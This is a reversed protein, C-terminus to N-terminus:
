PEDRRGRQPDRITLRQCPGGERVSYYSDVDLNPFSDIRGSPWRIEVRDVARAAGLGFHLRPDSASQYSGGGLRQAVQVRGGAEVRIKAGVADRGSRTGELRLGLFRGANETRNMLVALPADLDTVVADVRGDNDLDGVALGRGLRPARLSDGALDTADLFRFGHSGSTGLLLQTPMKYPSARLENLHGNASMLDLVGDNNADLAALGFGLLNRSPAALGVVRTRDAFVGPALNQYFTTSEGFFNTVALDPRGDGNWDGCAVGMGAQYGGQANGAVGWAPAVDEFRFGGLNRWLYNASEDNAVFLDIRQDDDLDAAVVGLGRGERDVLGSESTVDVFRDGDNRFVRDSLAASDRPNCYLPLGSVGDKCVKPRAPDWALYHCVYLDLDGDQDLDAFAASTPWDREGGLGLETTVDTFTGDGNNRYLVYARWRTLFLDPDGDNDYDGVAAGLGYGKHEALGARTTVDQFRGDGTNRFLRDGGVDSATARPPFDGGQTLYVDLWGDGDFDLLGVGSAMIEPSQLVAGRRSVGNDYTFELGRSKAEDHYRPLIVTSTATSRADVIAASSSPLALESWRIAPASAQARSSLDLEEILKTAAANGPAAGLALKSWARAEWDRGADRAHRALDLCVPPAPTPSTSPNASLLRIAANYNDLAQSVAHARARFREASAHDGQELALQARREIAALNAPDLALWDDIARILAQSDGGHELLWARSAYQERPSLRGDSLQGLARLAEDPRNALRAYNLWARWVPPDPHLDICRRLWRQAEDLQGRQTAILGRGLWVRDDEPALDDARALEEAMKDLSVIGRDLIWLDRLLNSPAASEAIQEHLLARVEDWRAALRYVRMLFARVEIRGEAQDAAALTRTLRDEIARLRLKPLDEEAELLAAMRDFKSGPPIAQFLSRAEARRGTLWELYGRLFELEGGGWGDHSSALSDLRARADGLAKRGLELKVAAIQQSFVRWRWAQYLVLVLGLGLVALAWPKWRSRRRPVHEPM